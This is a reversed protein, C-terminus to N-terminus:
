GIEETERTKRWAAIARDRGEAAMVRGKAAGDDLMKQCWDEARAIREALDPNIERIKDEFPYFASAIGLGAVLGGAFIKTVGKLICGCACCKCEGSKEMDIVGEDEDYHCSCTDHDGAHDEGCGCSFGKKLDFMGGVAMGIGTLIVAAKIIKEFKM